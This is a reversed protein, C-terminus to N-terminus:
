LCFLVFVYFIDLESFLITSSILSNFEVGISTVMALNGDSGSKESKSSSIFFPLENEKM